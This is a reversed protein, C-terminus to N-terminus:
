FIELESTAYEPYKVKTRNYLRELEQIFQTHLPDVKESSISELPIKDVKMPKGMEIRLPVRKPVMTGWRGFFIPIGLHFNQQLWKRFGLFLNSTDYM